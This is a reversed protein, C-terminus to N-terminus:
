NYIFNSDSILVLRGEKQHRQIHTLLTAIGPLSQLGNELMWEGKYESEGSRRARGGVVEGGCIELGRV